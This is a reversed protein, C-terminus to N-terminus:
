LGAQGDCPPYKEFIVQVAQELTVETSRRFELTIAGINIRERLYVAQSYMIHASIGSTGLVRLPPPVTLIIEHRDEPALVRKGDLPGGVCLRTDRIQM